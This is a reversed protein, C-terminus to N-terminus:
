RPVRMLTQGHDPQGGIGCDVLQHTARLVGAGLDDAFSSVLFPSAGAGEGVGVAV